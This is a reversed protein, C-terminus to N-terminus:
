RSMQRSSPRSGRKLRQHILILIKEMSILIKPTLRSLLKPTLRKSLLLKKKLCRSRSLQGLLVRFYDALRGGGAVIDKEDYPLKQRRPLDM